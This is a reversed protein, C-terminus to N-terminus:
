KHSGVIGKHTIPGKPIHGIYVKTWSNQILDNRLPTGEQDDLNTLEGPSAYM